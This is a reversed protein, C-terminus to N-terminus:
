TERSVNQWFHDFFCTLLCKYCFKILWVQLCPCFDIMWAIHNSDVTNRFLLANFCVFYVIFPVLLLLCMIFLRLFQTKSWLLMLNPVFLRSFSLKASKKRCYRVFVMNYLSIIIFHKVHFVLNYKKIFCFELFMKNIAPLGM